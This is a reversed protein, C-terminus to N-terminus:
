RPYNVDFLWPLYVWHGARGSSGATEATRTLSSPSSMSSGPLSLGSRRGARGACIEVVRYGSM